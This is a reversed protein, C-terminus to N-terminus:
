VSPCFNPHTKRRYALLLEMSGVLIGVYFLDGIISYQFFPIAMTYSQLLGLLSHPYMTGFAWVAGNTLLFFISSAGLTGGIITPVSKKNKLYRGILSAIIFSVYVSAMMKWDYFGIVLDSLIMAVLPVALSTRRSLYLGGFIAIASIPAVNPPHPLLRAVVGLFILIIPLLLVGTDVINKKITWPKM